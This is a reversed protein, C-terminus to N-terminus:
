IVGVWAASGLFESPRIPDGVDGDGVADGVEAGLGAVAGGGGFDGHAEEGVGLGADQEALGGVLDGFGFVEEAEGGHFGLDEGAEGSAPRQPSDGLAGGDHLM